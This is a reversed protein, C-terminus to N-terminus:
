LAHHALRLLRASAARTAELQERAFRRYRSLRQFEEHDACHQCPENEFYARESYPM